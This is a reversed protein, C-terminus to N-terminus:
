PGPGGCSYATLLTSDNDHAQNTNDPAAGQLSPIITIPASRNISRLLTTDSLSTARGDGLLHAVVVLDDPPGSFNFVLAAMDRLSRVSVLDDVAMVVTAPAGTGAGDTATKGMGGHIDPDDREFSQCRFDTILM